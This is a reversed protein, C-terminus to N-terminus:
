ETKACIPAWAGLVAESGCGAAEPELTVHQIRWNEVLFRRIARCLTEAESTSMDQVTVHATLARQGPGIQWVHVHHIRVPCFRQGVSEALAEIEIDDPAGELLTSLAQRVIPLVGLIVAVGIIIAAVPDLYRGMSTNALAAALLVILSSVADQVLHLFASRVNVDHHDHRRLLLVSVTNALLAISAVVVM